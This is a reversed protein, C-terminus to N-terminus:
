LFIALSSNGFYKSPLIFHFSLFINALNQHPFSVLALSYQFSSPSFLHLSYLLFSSRVCTISSHSIPPGFSVSFISFPVPSPSVSRFVIISFLLTICSPSSRCYPLVALLCFGLLQWLKLSLNYLPTYYFPYSPLYIYLIYLSIFIYLVSLIYFRLLYVLHLVSLDDLASLCPILLLLYIIIFLVIVRKM